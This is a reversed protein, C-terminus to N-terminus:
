IQFFEDIAEPEFTVREEEEEETDFNWTIQKNIQQYIKKDNDIITTTTSQTASKIRHKFNLHPQNESQNTKQSKLFSAKLVLM